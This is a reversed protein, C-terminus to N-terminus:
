RLSAFPPWHGGKANEPLLNGGCRHPPKYQALRGCRGNRGLPIWEAATASTGARWPLPANSRGTAPLTPREIRGTGLLWKMFRNLRWVNKAATTATSHESLGGGACAMRG